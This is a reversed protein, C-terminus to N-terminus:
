LPAVSYPGGGVSQRSNRGGHGLGYASPVIIRQITINLAIEKKREISKLATGSRGCAVTVVGDVICPSVM